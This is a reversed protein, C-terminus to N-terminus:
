GIITDIKGGLNVAVSLHKIALRADQPSFVQLLGKIVAVDYGDTVEIM